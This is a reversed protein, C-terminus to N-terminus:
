SLKVEDQDPSTMGGEGAATGVMPPFFAAHDLPQRRAQM